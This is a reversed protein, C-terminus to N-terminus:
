ATTFIANGDLTARIHAKKTPWKRRFDWVDADAPYDRRRKCLWAFAADLVADAAIKTLITMSAM